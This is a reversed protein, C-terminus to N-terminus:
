KCLQESLIAESLKGGWGRKGLVEVGSAALYQIESNHFNNNEWFWSSSSKLEVFM